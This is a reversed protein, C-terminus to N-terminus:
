FYHWKRPRFSPIQGFFSSGRVSDIQQGMKFRFTAGIQVFRFKPAFFFFSSRFLIKLFYCNAPWFSVLQGIFSSEVFSDKENVQKWDFLQVLKGSVSNQRYFFFRGGFRFNEYFHWKPPRFSLIQGFFSSGRVSDSRKVQKWDFLQVLKNSSSNQRLFFLASCRFPFKPFFAIEFASVVSNPSFVIFRRQLRPQQSM